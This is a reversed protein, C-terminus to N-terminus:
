KAEPTKAAGEAPKGEGPKREGPKRDGGPAGPGGPRRGGEPFLEKMKEKQEPTLVAAIEDRQNKTIEQMKTRDADTVNERGKAFIERLQPGYKEMIVKVKDQQEQTLSLKETMEKLRDGGGRREGPAGPAGPKREPRGAAPKDGGPKPAETGGPPKPPVADEALTVAPLACLGALALTLTLKKIM